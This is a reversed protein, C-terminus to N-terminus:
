RVEPGLEVGLRMHAANDRHRPGLIRVGGIRLEEDNEAVGTEEVLLIGHPALHRGAHLIDVLDLTAFRHTIRVLDDARDYASDARLSNPARRHHAIRTSRKSKSSGVSRMASRGTSGRSAARSSTTRGWPAEPAINSSRMTRSRGSRREGPSM